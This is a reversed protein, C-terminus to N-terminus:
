KYTFGFGIVPEINVIEHRPLFFVESGNIVKVYGEEAEELVGEHKAGTELEVVVVKDLYENIILM